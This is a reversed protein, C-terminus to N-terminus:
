FDSFFNFFVKGRRKWFHILITFAEAEQRDIVCCVATDKLDGCLWTMM